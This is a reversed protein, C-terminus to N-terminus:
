HLKKRDGNCIVESILFLCLRRFFELRGPRKFIPSFVQSIKLFYYLMTSNKILKPFHLYAEAAHNGKRDTNKIIWAFVFIQFPRCEFESVRYLSIQSYIM